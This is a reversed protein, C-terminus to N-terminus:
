IGVTEWFGVSILFFFNLCLSNFFFLFLASYFGKRDRQINYHIPKSSDTNRFTPLCLEKVCVRVCTCTMTELTSGYCLGWKAKVGVVAQPGPVMKGTPAKGKM